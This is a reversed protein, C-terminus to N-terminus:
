PETRQVPRVKRVAGYGSRLDDLLGHLEALADKPPGDPYAESQSEFVHRGEIWGLVRGLAVAYQLSKLRTM